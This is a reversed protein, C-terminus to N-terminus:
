GHGRVAAALSTGIHCALEYRKADVCMQHLEALMAPSLSAAPPKSAPKEAKRATKKAVVRGEAKPKRTKTRDERSYRDHNRQKKRHYVCYKVFAAPTDKRVNGQPNKCGPEACHTQADSPTVKQVVPPEQSEPVQEAIDDLREQVRKGDICNLCPPPEAGPWSGSDHEVQARRQKLVCTGAAMVAVLPVCRFRERPTTLADLPVVRPLALSM